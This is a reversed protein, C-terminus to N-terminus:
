TDHMVHSDYLDTGRHRKEGVLPGVVSPDYAVM